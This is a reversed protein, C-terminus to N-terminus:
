IRRSSGIHMTSAVFIMHFYIKTTVSDLAYFQSRLKFPLFLESQIM